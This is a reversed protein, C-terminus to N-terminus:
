RRKLWQEWASINKGFTQGTIEELVKHAYDRVLAQDDNLYEICVPVGSLDGMRGLAQAAAITPGWKISPMTERPVRKRTLFRRTLYPKVAPITKRDGIRGLAKILVAACYMHARISKLTSGSVPENQPFKKTFEELIGAIYPAARKEKMRGLLMAAIWEYPWTRKGGARRQSKTSLLKLLVPKSHPDELMGLVVAADAQVNDDKSRLLPLLVPVSKKGSLYFCSMAKRPKESGLDKAFTSLDYEKEQASLTNAPLVGRKILKQQVNKVSVRKATSRTRVAVAAAVGAAEGMHHYDRQMRLSIQSDHDGSYAKGVVLINDITDALLSRYPVHGSMGWGSWNGLVLVWNQAADSENEWNSGHRDYHSSTLCIVDPFTRHLALDKMTLIYEGIIHRSERPAAQPSIYAGGRKWAEFQKMTIDTLDRVNTVDRLGTDANGMDATIAMAHLFHDGERGKTFSAGAAAAVDAHGTADIVIDALIVGRGGANQIVVGKVRNGEVVAGCAFTRYYITGGAKLFMEQLVLKKREVSWALGRAKDGLGKSKEDIVKYMGSSFGVGGYYRNITTVATGGLMPLVEVVATKVGEGAAAIAAPAGSTGGGAVLVNVREVVPLEHVKEPIVPFELGTDAGKLFERVTDGSHKEERITVSRSLRIMSNSSSIAIAAAGAKEGSSLMGYLTSGEPKVSTIRGAAALGNIGYPICESSCRVVPTTDLWVEDGMYMSVKWGRMNDLKEFGKVNERLYQAAAMAKARTSAQISSLSLGVNDEIEVDLAIEIVRANKRLGAKDLDYVAIRNERIGLSAPVSIYTEGTYTSNTSILYRRATNKGTLPRIFQAGAASAASGYGTADVVCRGLIVQRGSRNVIVVGRVTNGDMVVGSFMTYLYPRVNTAECIQKTLWIKLSSADALGSGYAKHRALISMIKGATGSSGSAAPGSTVKAPGALEFGFYNRSGIIIVTKGKEAATLAAAVGAAGGGVVVVDAKDIVPVDRESQQVTQSKPFRSLYKIGSGGHVCRSGSSIYTLFIIDLIYLLAVPILLPKKMINDGLASVATNFHRLPTNGWYFIKTLM